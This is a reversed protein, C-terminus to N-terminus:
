YDIASWMKYNLCKGEILDKAVAGSIGTRQIFDDVDNFGIPTNNYFLTFPKYLISSTDKKKKTM